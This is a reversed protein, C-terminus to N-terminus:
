KKVTRDFIENGDTLLLIDGSLDTRLINAGIDELRRVTELHPHNYDNDAGCSIVAYEPRVMDLFEQGSSTQSGHHGVKLVDASIDFGNSECYEIIENEPGKEIDGTFLFKVNGYKLLIVVSYNNLNDYEESLPALILLEAGGLQYTRGYEARTVGIRKNEIETMLKEFTSTNSVAPPMILTDITYDRVVQFASGIHDAHPHTFVAYKLEKVGYYDLYGSLKSYQDNEGSDILMFENEPTQILISDGQGVDIFHVALNGGMDVPPMSDETFLGSRNGFYALFFIGIAIVMGLLTRNGRLGPSKMKKRPTHPIKASKRTQSVSKRKYGM